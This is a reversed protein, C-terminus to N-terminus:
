LGVDLTHSHLTRLMSNQEATPVCRNVAQVDDANSTSAFPYEDCSPGEPDPSGGGSCRNKPGCGAKKRRATKTANSPKDYHLNVDFNRCYAGFCMNTCVGPTNDCNYVMEPTDAQATVYTLPSLVFFTLLWTPSFM